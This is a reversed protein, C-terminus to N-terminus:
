AVQELQRADMARFYDTFRAAIDAWGSVRVILEHEVNRNYPKDMLYVPIGAYALAIAHHPADEIAAAMNHKVAVHAKPLHERHSLITPLDGLGNAVLWAGMLLGSAPARDSVIVPELGAAQMAKLTDVAGPQAPVSAQWEPSGYCEAGWLWEAHECENLWGWHTVHAPEICTGHRANCTALMHTDLCTITSDFDVLIKAM